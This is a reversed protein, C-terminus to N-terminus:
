IALLVDSARFSAYAREGVSLEMKKLQESPIVATLTNEGKLALTIEASTGDDEIELIEGFLCNIEKTHECPEKQLSVWHSKILAFVSSGIDVEMAKASKQTITANMMEESGIDLVVNFKVLSSEISTIKGTYQNRASTQLTLRKGIQMLHTLTDGKNNLLNFLKNQLIEIEKYIKIYERGKKTLVTGGGGKGGTERIVIPESSLTNMDNVADWAAKYSMKMERAAKSISGYREIHELLDIRGKGFYGHQENEFWLNSKIKM